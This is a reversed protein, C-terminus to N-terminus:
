FWKRQVGIWKMGFFSEQQISSIIPELFTQLENIVNDFSLKESKAPEFAKWQTILFKNNSFDSLRKFFDDEVMHGRHQLTQYIAKQLIQGDFDFMGSLYYIDYFDKMRSTTEMRQIIADFKEAITSELSYTYIEPSIFDNLRVTINRLVPNPVIVDDIGVDISFPIRINNIHGMFKTKVGPYKKQLTIKETGVVEIKIFDYETPVNCIEQMVSEINELDGSLRRILFDMDRTPRSDFKTLTYIFMGGKLIMNEKFRSYSLRRLFEEQIFLQLCIQYNINETKAQNKLRALVSASVNKLAM